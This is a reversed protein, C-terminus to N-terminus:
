GLLKTRLQKFYAFAEILRSGYWSFMEGDVLLISINPNLSKLELIDKEKFPYPESSLLIVEPKVKLMLEEINCEPYRTKHSFVNNFKNINLLNHIFNNNGVAMYPNKWILYAVNINPYNDIYKTFDQYAIQIKQILQTTKEEIDFIRGLQDIMNLNDEITSIDSVWVPAIKQLETVIEKTNEEKNAIIIDPNLKKIKDFHVNKTGGIITKQKKLYSPHICFKTIGVIKDEFDLSCLLETQSPVLSVITTPTTDFTLINGIQDTFTNSM